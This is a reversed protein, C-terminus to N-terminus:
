PSTSGEPEPIRGVGAGRRVVEIIFSNDLEGLGSREGAALQDRVVSILDIPSGLSQAHEVILRADKSSQRLRANPHDHDAAVMRDGWLDMARSYAVGDRLVDFTRRLDLDAMEAAVLAEALGARNIGLCHNVILKMTTGAGAPGLYHHSRGLVNMVGRAREYAETSGGFMVVLEGREAVAANGSVTMDAFEIGHEALREHIARADQPHGTTADLVLLPRDASEVIGNTGLCVETSIQSTLLSLVAIDCGAVAEAPSSTVAGGAQEFAAARQPDPDHGRLVYGADILRAAFRSGM